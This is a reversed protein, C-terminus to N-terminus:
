GSIAAKLLHLIAEEEMGELLDAIYAMREEADPGCGALTDPIVEQLAGPHSRLIRLISLVEGLLHPQDRYADVDVLPILHDLRVEVYAVGLLYTLELELEERQEPQSLDEALPCRGQLVLRLLYDDAPDQSAVMENFAHRATQALDHLTHIDGLDDLIVEVWEFPAFARFTMEAVSQGELSVLLGGKPGTERPNRGQINGAYWAQPTACVQQRIHIHGLAWYQCGARQLDEVSCPAYRDHNDADKATTVQTHLLGIHPVADEAPPFAAALNEAVHKTVHGAAVIRAVVEGAENVLPFVAPTGRHIYRFSSPWAIRSARHSGGGPDHNGTVYFCPIEAQDLRKCQEILFRETKFSLREDDFLDGAILVAQVSEELAYDIARQFATRLGERLQQRLTDSRCQFATDLHVDALHLIKIM